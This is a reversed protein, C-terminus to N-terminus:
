IEGEGNLNHHFEIVARLDAVLELGSPSDAKVLITVRIVKNAM